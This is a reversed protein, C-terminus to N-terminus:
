NRADSATVKTKRMTERSRKPDKVNRGAGGVSRGSQGCGKRIGFWAAQERTQDDVGERDSRADRKDMPVASTRGSEPRTAAGSDGEAEALTLRAADQVKAKKPGFLATAFEELAAKQEALYNKREDYADDIWTRKMVRSGAKAGLMTSLARLRAWATSRGSHDPRCFPLRQM